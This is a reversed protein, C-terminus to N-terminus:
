YFIESHKDEIYTEELDRLHYLYGKDDFYKAQIPCKKVCACCKICIGTIKTVDEFDISEMPCSKACIKCDICTDRTKPTVKLISIFQGDKDLPKFYGRYPDEEGRVSLIKNPQNAIIKKASEEGLKDLLILDKSNPRNSGLSKSFSHEGVFAGASIVKFDRKLLIDRLEILADDYNRNGYTVIGIALAGKGQLTNLFNLLLNPLRGAYVPLGIIVIDDKGFGYTVKREKALTFDLLSLPFTLKHSLSEGLKTVIM